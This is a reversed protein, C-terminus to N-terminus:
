LARKLTMFGDSYLGSKKKKRISRGGFLKAGREGCQLEAETTYQVSGGTCDSKEPEKLKGKKGWVEEYM